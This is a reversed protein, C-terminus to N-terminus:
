RELRITRLAQVRCTNLAASVLTPHAAAYMAGLILPTYILDGLMMNRLFPLGLEYSYLLGAFSKEYWPSFWWVAANTSLYFLLSSGIVSYGVSLISPRKRALWSLAAILTFSGYVSLMILPDYLGIILDSLLLVAFPLLLSINRGFFFAGAFILATVPTANPLHPLLRGALGIGILAVAAILLTRREMTNFNQRRLNGPSSTAM